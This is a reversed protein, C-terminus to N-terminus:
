SRKESVYKSDAEPNIGEFGAEPICATVFMRGFDTLRMVSYRRIGTQLNDKNRIPDQKTVPWIVLGLSELHAYYLEVQEPVLLEKSPLESKEVLRNEWTSSQQNLEMTDVVDFDKDRLRYLMWAEDRSLQAILQPFSPHITTIQKQSVAKTLVEEFMKWLESGDDLYKMKELTPGVLEVPAEIRDKEPVRKSIREIMKGVRDQFAAGIQLPFLLLRACKMADKGLSGLEKLGGSLADDYAKDITKAPILEFLKTSDDSAMNQEQSVSAALERFSPPFNAPPSPNSGLCASDSDATRGNSSGGIGPDSAAQGGTAPM